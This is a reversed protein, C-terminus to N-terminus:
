RLGDRERLKKIKEAIQSRYALIDDLKKLPLWKDSIFIRTFGLNLQFIMRFSGNKLERDLYFSYCTKNKIATVRAQSIGAPLIKKLLELSIPTEVGPPPLHIEPQIAAPAASYCSCCSSKVLRQVEGIFEAKKSGWFADKPYLRKFLMKCFEESPNNLENKIESSLLAKEKVGDLTGPHYSSKHFKELVDIPISNYDEISFSLFPESDMINKNVADTFFMYEVGNTLIALKTVPLAFFYKHTQRAMVQNLKTRCHKCEVLIIPKGDRIIAYDVRDAGHARDPYYEPVVEHPDFIDYGLIQLFPLILSQKTAEETTISHKKMSISDALKKLQDKM